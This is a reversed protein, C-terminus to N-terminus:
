KAKKGKSKPRHAPRPIKKFALVDARRFLRANGVQVSKLRGKRAFQDVRSKSVGLEAAVQATTM